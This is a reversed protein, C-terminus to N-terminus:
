IESSLTYQPGILGRYRPGIPGQPGIKPEECDELRREKRDHLWWLGFLVWWINNNM